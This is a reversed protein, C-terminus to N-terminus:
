IGGMIAKLEEQVIQRIKEENIVEEFIGNASNNEESEQKIRMYLMKLSSYNKCNMFGIYHEVVDHNGKPSRAVEFAHRIAREVRSGTTNNKKAIMPYLEKTVSINETKDLVLIADTIYKFGKIGAPIGIEFLVNEVESRNM